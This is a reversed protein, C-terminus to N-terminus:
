ETGCCKDWAGSVVMCPKYLTYIPKKPEADASKCSVSRIIKNLASILSQTSSKSLPLLASLFFTGAIHEGSLDTLHLHVELHCLDTTYLYVQLYILM